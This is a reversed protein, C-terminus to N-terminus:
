QGVRALVDCALDGHIILVVLQEMGSGRLVGFVFAMAHVLDLEQGIRGLLVQM